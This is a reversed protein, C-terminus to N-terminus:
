QHSMMQEIDAKSENLADTLQAIKESNELNEKHIVLKEDNAIRMKELIEDYSDKNKEIVWKM